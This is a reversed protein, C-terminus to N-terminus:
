LAAQDAGDGLNRCLERFAPPLASLMVVIFFGSIIRKLM